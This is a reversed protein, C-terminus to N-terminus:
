LYQSQNKLEQVAAHSENKFLLLTEDNTKGNFSGSQELKILINLAKIAGMTQYSPKLKHAVAKIRNENNSKLVESIEAIFDPEFEIFKLIMLEILSPDGNSLSNLYDFSINETKMIANSRTSFTAIKAILEDPQFPKSIYSDFGEKIYKEQDGKLANATQAIIIQDPNNAKIKKMATIGDVEPMQLDMLIVDFVDPQYQNIAEQGNNVITVKVGHSELIIKTLEQNYENDEALLINAGEVKSSQKKPPSETHKKKKTCIETNLIFSFTTGVNIKSQVELKGGMLSVLNECIALGLGTGNFKKSLTSDIQSFSDFISALNKTSIGIGTDSVKIQLSCKTNSTTIAKVELNVGGKETFKIANSLLNTVIQNLRLEDIKLCKLKKDIELDLNFDLEKKHCFPLFYEKINKSPNYKLM